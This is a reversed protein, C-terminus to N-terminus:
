SKLVKEILSNDRRAAPLLDGSRTQQGMSTVALTKIADSQQAMYNKDSQRTCEPILLYGYIDLFYSKLGFDDIKILSHDKINWLSVYCVKTKLIPHLIFEYNMTKNFSLNMFHM